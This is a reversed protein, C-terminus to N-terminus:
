QNNPTKRPIIQLCSILNKPIQKKLSLTPKNQNISHNGNKKSTICKTNNNNEGFCQEM